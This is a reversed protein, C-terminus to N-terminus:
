FRIVKYPKNHIFSATQAFGSHYMKGTILLFLRQANSLMMLDIFSKLYSEQSANVSYSMHVLNGPIIYVYSYRENATKLFSSSDATVLIKNDTFRQHLIEIQELCKNILLDKEKMPLEQSNKERFDGLLNQFRFTASIYDTGINKKNILLAEELIPSPKFLENFLLEFEHNIALHANSYIHIQRKKYRKFLNYLYKTQYECEEEYTMGLAEYAMPIKRVKIKSCEFSINEKPIIWNVENPILFEDLYFPYDFWIKFPIDNEKSIKYLSVIGQLRDCLGGLM